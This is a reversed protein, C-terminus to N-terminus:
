FRTLHFVFGFVTLGTSVAVESCRGGTQLPRGLDRARSFRTYILRTNQVLRQVVAMRQVVAVKQHDWPHGNYVPKVTTLMIKERGLCKFFDDLITSGLHEVRHAQRRLPVPSSQYRSFGLLWSQVIFDSVLHTWIGSGM